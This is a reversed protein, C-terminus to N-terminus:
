LVTRVFYIDCKNSYDIVGSIIIEDIQTQVRFTMPATDNNRRRVRFRSDKWYMFILRKERLLVRTLSGYVPMPYKKVLRFIRSERTM